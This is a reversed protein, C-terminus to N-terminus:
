LLLVLIMTMGIVTLNTTINTMNATYVYYYGAVPIVNVICTYMGSDMSSSLTSFQVQSQYKNYSILSPNNVSIRSQGNIYSKNLTRLEINLENLMVWITNIIFPTNVHPDITIDCTITLESGALYDSQRSLTVDLSPTPVIVFFSLIYLNNAEFELIVLM